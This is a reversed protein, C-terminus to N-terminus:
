LVLMKALEICAFGNPSYEGDGSVKTVMTYGCNTWFRLAGWNKLGVGCYAWHFGKQIALEELHLATERGYGKGQCDQKLFLSGIYIADARPYGCYYDLLGILQENRSYLLFHRNNKAKGGPPLEEKLAFSRGSAEVSQPGLLAMLAKNDRYIEVAENEHEATVAEFVIRETPTIDFPKMRKRYCRLLDM